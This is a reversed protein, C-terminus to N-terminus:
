DKELLRDLRRHTERNGESIADRLTREMTTMDSRIGTVTTNFETRTVTHATKEELDSIRHEQRKWHWGFLALLALIGAMVYQEWWDRM